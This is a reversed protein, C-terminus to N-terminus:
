PRAITVVPSTWTEWHAPNNADGLAKLVSLQVIYEGNPVTLVQNANNGKGVFTTGDWGFAFFSTATSSRTVYEDDSIRHWAKGTNADFAEFRVRRSQHDLHVLFYPIDFGVMTYPAGTTNLSFTTGNATRGLRPFGTATPVLVQVTQYDGKLGVYPVRYTQGGGQPTLVVYGGHLGRDPLGASPTITVDVTASGGAPVFVSPASFAVTSPQNLYTIATFVNNPAANQSNNQPGTALAPAHSLDFTVGSAGNNRVTLTEVHSGGESEGLSLKGPTVSVTANIAGVVDAMGAGQRHVNDLFGLGPNGWWLSPDASNQLLTRMDQSSTDPRAQLVLAAVGAVHPSSMSTGSNGGHSGLEIPITSFIQGGPGGIDPKLSLDAALGFSSFGSILGGSAIPTVITASGWTVTAGPVHGDILAGNVNTVAVVPITIPPDAATPPAVTPNLAGAVNNYLIVGAAGANQANFSKLYFSCTGRRILAYHGATFGAFQAATCGDDLSAPTGTKSIDFTGSTPPPPSGSAGSYPILTGGPDLTFAKQTAHTNDYSAVGIVKAGVGPAGASYLGNPSSGQPGSNGISAVVVVGQNVLRTGAAATPYQPWNQLASGISMNLVDMGDALAREMAAIMIDATTSGTCGFVRYAGFTVDPAVGTVVGSAGVIGAVHSGHGGCDDPFPDPVPTLGATFADGVFDWGAVVRSTPFVASNSRQVGDGGFDAHDYDIGTDMVAVKIGQGTYGSDQAINAGTMEIAHALDPAEGYTPNFEPAQIVEVPWLAKVGDVRALKARNVSDIQVSYGNFLVDFSRLETYRVGAAAAAKKFAAKEAKVQAASRGDATPAGSLEVFWHTTANEAVLEGASEQASASILGLSLALTGALGASFLTKKM